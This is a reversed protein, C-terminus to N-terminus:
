EEPEEENARRAARYEACFRELGEVTADDVLAPVGNLELHIEKAISINVRARDMEASAKFEVGWVVGTQILDCVHEGDSLFMDLKISGPDSLFKTPDVTLRVNPEKTTM